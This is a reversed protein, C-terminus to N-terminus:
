DLRAIRDSLWDGFGPVIDTAVRANAPLGTTGNLDCITRGRGVPGCDVDVHCETLTLLGPDIVQAVAVADHIPSGAWGVHSRGYYSVLEATLTGARGAQLLRECHSPEILARHTVDLGVMTVDLGSTFTRRAADPDAWINFEANPTVNGFGAAGGMLVVRGVRAAVDPYRAAFLAINTLPGTPVLVLPEPSAEVQEAILDIAHAAAPERSPPPLDPGDLGTPGHVDGPTFPDQVLPRDAGAAVPIDPRGVHDLVRIANAVTHHLPANGSVATVARLEVEPSALALMIAIADDHGPDCDILIPVPM